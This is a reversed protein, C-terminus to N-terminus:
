HRYGHRRDGVNKYIVYAILGVIALTIVNKSLLFGLVSGLIGFLMGVLGIGVGFLVRVLWVLFFALVIAAILKGARSM